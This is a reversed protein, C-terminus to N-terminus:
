RVATFHADADLGATDAAGVGVEDCSVERAQGPWQGGSVLDRARDGFDARSDFSELDTIPHGDAPETAVAVVARLAALTLEDVAQVPFNRAPVIGAAVGLRRGNRGGRQSTDGGLQRVGFGCRHATRAHRGVVRQPMGLRQGAVPNRNQPNATETVEPDLEGPCHTELGDRDVTAGGLFRICEFQARMVVDIGGVAVDGVRQVIEAPDRDHKPVAPADFAIAAVTPPNCGKPSSIVMPTVGSGSGILGSCNIVGPSLMM